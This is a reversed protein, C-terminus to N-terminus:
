LILAASLTNLHSPRTSVRGRTSRRKPTYKLLALDVCLSLARHRSSSAVTLGTPNTAGYAARWGGGFGATSTSTGVGLGRSTASRTAAGSGITVIKVSRHGLAGPGNCVTARVKSGHQGFLQCWSRRGVHRVFAGEFGLGARTTAAPNTRHRVVELRLGKLGILTSM